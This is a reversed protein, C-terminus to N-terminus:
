ASAVTMTRLNIHFRAGDVDLAITEDDIWTFRGSKPAHGAAAASANLKAFAAQIRM